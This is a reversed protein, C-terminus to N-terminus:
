LLAFYNRTICNLIRKMTAITTWIPKHLNRCVIMLRISIAIINLSPTTCSIPQLCATLRLALSNVRLANTTRETITILRNYNGTIEYIRLRFYHYVVYTCRKLIHNNQWKRIRSSFFMNKITNRPFRDFQIAIWKSLSLIIKNFKIWCEWPVNRDIM